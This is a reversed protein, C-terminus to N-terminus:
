QEEARSSDELAVRDKLYQVVDTKEGLRARVLPTHGKGDLATQINAGQQEVLFRIVVLAEASGNSAALHLAMYQDADATTAEVNAGQQEVLYKVVYYQGYHSAIHLATWGTENMKSEVAVIGKELIYKVINVHGAQCACHVASWAWEQQIVSPTTDNPWEMFLAVVFLLGNNSAVQLATYGDCNVANLGGIGGSVVSTCHNPQILEFLLKVIDVHGASCALHLATNGHKDTMMFDMADMDCGRRDPDFRAVFYEVIDTQGHRCALYWGDATITADHGRCTRWVRHAIQCHVLSGSDRCHAIRYLGHQKEHYCQGFLCSCCRYHYWCWQRRIGMSDNQPQLFFTVIDAHGKFSALHLANWGHATTIDSVNVTGSTTQMARLICDQVTALNGNMVATLFQASADPEPVGLM